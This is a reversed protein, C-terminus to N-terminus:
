LLPIDIWRPLSDLDALWGPCELALELVPFELKGPGLFKCELFCLDSTCLRRECERTRANGDHAEARLFAPTSINKKIALLHTFDIGPDRFIRGIIVIPM